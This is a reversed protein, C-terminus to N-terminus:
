IVQWTNYGSKEEGRKYIQVKFNFLREVMHQCDDSIFIRQYKKSVRYIFTLHEKVKTENEIEIYKFEHFSSKLSKLFSISERLDCKGLDSLNTSKDLSEEDL